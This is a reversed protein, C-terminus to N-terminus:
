QNIREIQVDNKAINTACDYCVINDFYDSWQPQLNSVTASLKDGCIPCRGDVNNNIVIMLRKMLDLEKNTM